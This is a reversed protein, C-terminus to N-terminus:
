RKQGNPHDERGSFHVEVQVDQNAAPIGNGKRLGDQIAFVFQLGDDDVSLHSWQGLLNFYCIDLRMDYKAEKIYNECNGRKEYFEVVKSIITRYQHCFSITTNKAKWSLYNNETKKMRWYVPCLLGDPKTWTNLAATLEATERGKEGTVFVISSRDGACGSDSVRERQDCIYMWIIWHNWSTMTLIAAIWASHLKWVKTKSIPWSKRSWKRRAMQRIPIEAELMALWTLRSKMVSHLSSTIATTGLSKPIYGKIAGEQHGEVNVVSSDIDITISKLKSKRLLKRFVNFNIERLM